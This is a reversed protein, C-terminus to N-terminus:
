KKEKLLNELIKIYDAQLELATILPAYAAKVAKAVRRPQQMSPKLWKQPNVLLERLQKEWTQSMTILGKKTNTIVMYHCVVAPQFLALTTTYLTLTLKQHIVM